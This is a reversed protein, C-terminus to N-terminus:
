QVGFRKRMYSSARESDKDWRIVVRVTQRDVIDAEKLMAGKLKGEANNRISESLTRVTENTNERVAYNTDKAADEDSMAVEEDARIRNKIRDQAKEVNKTLTKVVSSSAVDKQLFEILKRNATLEAVRYANERNVESNGYSPAYATVEISKIDGKSCTANFLGTPWNCNWEIKIGKRSFNSSLKQANIPTIQGGDLGGVPSQTSSCAVLGLSTVIALSILTHKVSFEM